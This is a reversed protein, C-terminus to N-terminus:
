FAEQIWIKKMLLTFFTKLYISKNSARPSNSLFSSCNNNNNNNNDDDDDDDSALHVGTL